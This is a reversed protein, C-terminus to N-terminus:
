RIRHELTLEIRAVSNYHIGIFLLDDEALLLSLRRGDGSGLQSRRRLLTAYHLFLLSGARPAQKKLPSTQHRVISTAVSTRLRFTVGATASSAM